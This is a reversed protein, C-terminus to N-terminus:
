PYNGFRQHYSFEIPEECTNINFQRLAACFVSRLDIRGVLRARRAILMATNANHLYAELFLSELASSATHKSETSCQAIVSQREMEARVALRLGAINMQLFDDITPPRPNDTRATDKPCEGITYQPCITELDARFDAPIMDPFVLDLLKLNLHVHRSTNVAYRKLVRHEVPDVSTAALSWASRSRNGADEAKSILSVALWQGDSAAARYHDAYVDTGFSQPEDWLAARLAKLYDACEVTLDYKCLARLATAYIRNAAHDVISFESNDVSLDTVTTM